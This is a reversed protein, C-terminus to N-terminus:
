LMRSQPTFVHGFGNDNRFYTAIVFTFHFYSVLENFHSGNEAFCVHHFELFSM